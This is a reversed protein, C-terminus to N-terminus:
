YCPAGPKHTSARRGTCAKARANTSISCGSVRDLPILSWSRSGTEPWLKRWTSIPGTCNGRKPTVSRSFLVPAPRVSERLTYILIPLLLFGQIVKLFIVKEVRYVGRDITGVIRSNLPTKEFPGGILRWCPPANEKKLARRVDAETRMARLEARRRDRAENMRATLYRPGTM